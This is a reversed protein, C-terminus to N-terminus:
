ILQKKLLLTELYDSSVHLWFEEGSLNAFMVAIGDPKWRSQLKDAYCWGLPAYGKSILKEPDSFVKLMGEGRNGCWLNWEFLTSDIENDFMSIIDSRLVIKM